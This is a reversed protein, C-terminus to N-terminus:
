GAEVLHLPSPLALTRAIRAGDAYDVEFVADSTADPVYARSADVELSLAEAAEPDALAGALLPESAGIPAGAGDFALVRGEADIAVVHGDADDVAAVRVLPAETEVLTWARERTDLLWYGAEGAVAAATARGARMAFATPRLAAGTGAPLDIRELAVGADEEVALVAGEACGLVVGVRTRIGGAADTCPVSEAVAGEADRAEVASATALVLGDGLPAAFGAPAAGQQRGLEVVEGQGLADRDLLVVEDGARVATVSESSVIAVAGQPDGTGADLTGVDLTGVIRPEASYYHAHDGHDVTWAGADVIVVGEATTAALFRGDDAVHTTAGIGGLEEVEETVPDLLRVAGAADIAALLHAPEALEAAGEVYGHPRAEDAATSAAPAPAPAGACATLVLAGALAAAAPAARRISRAATPSPTM